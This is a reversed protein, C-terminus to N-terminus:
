SGFPKTGDLGKELTQRIMEVQRHESGLLREALRLARKLAAEAPQPQGLHARCLGLNYLTLAVFPTDPCSAALIALAQEFHEAAKQYSGRAFYINGLNNVCEAVGPHEKGVIEKRLELAQQHQLLAEEAQGADHYAAGLSSCVESKTFLAYTLAKTRKGDSRSSGMRVSIADEVLGKARQYFVIAQTPDGLQHHQRGVEHLSMALPMAKTTKRLEEEEAAYEAEQVRLTEELYALGTAARGVDAGLTEFKGLNIYTNSTSSTSSASPPSTSASRSIHEFASAHSSLRPIGGLLKRVGRQPARALPM